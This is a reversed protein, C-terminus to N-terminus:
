PNFRIVVLSLVTFLGGEATYTKGHMNKLTTETGHLNKQSVADGSRLTHMVRGVMTHLKKCNKAWSTCVPDFVSKKVKSTHVM